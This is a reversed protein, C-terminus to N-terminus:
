EPLSSGGTVPPRLLAGRNAQTERELKKLMETYRSESYHAAAQRLLPLFGDASWGGLQQHPWKREALAFPALYDFAEQIGRGDPTRFHWLDVGLGDGVRALSMLGSLNGVSYSWAKTRALELPQRGDPEIQVAIRKARATELVEKAFKQDGTFLAFSVVQLDYYTGHNNKAAAEDRGNQSERMWRLFDTFWKELGRQDAETWAKAGALLGAGDVVRVLGRSEILGIGRGSNIGPIAQAFQFNPNMRTPPDLFWVRLFETAKAAYTEDGTFYYALALTEVSDPMAGINRHDTIKNIEPNREGDHRVYPLGNTTEPNPWFYPAQSMYDHKDGSPPTTSKNVVSLPKANLATKADRELAALAPALNTDGSRLRQRTATLYSADLLYVRPVSNSTTSIAPTKEASTAPQAPLLFLVFLVVLGLLGPLSMASRHGRERLLPRFLDRRVHWNRWVNRRQYAARVACRATGALTEGSSLCQESEVPRKM